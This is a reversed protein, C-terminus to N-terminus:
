STSIESSSASCIRVAPRAMACGSAAGYSGTRRDRRGCALRQESPREFGIVPEAGRRAGLEDVSDRQDAGHLLGVSGELRERSLQGVLHGSSGPGEGDRRFRAALGVPVQTVQYSRELDAGLWRVDEIVAMTLARRDHRPAREAPGM